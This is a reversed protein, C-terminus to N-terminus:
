AGRSGKDEENLHRLDEMVIITAGVERAKGLLRRLQGITSRVSGGGSM